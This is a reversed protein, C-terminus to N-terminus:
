AQFFGTATCQQHQGFRTKVIHWGLPTRFREAPVVTAPCFLHFVDLGMDRLCRLRMRALGFARALTNPASPSLVRSASTAFSQPPSGQEMVCSESSDFSVRCAIVLCKPTSSRAPM